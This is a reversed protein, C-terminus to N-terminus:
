LSCLLHLLNSFNIIVIHWVLFNFNRTPHRRCDIVLRKAAQCNEHLIKKHPWLFFWLLYYMRQEGGLIFGQFNSHFTHFTVNWDCLMAQWKIEMGYIHLHEEKQDIYRFLHLNKPHHASHYPPCGATNELIKLIWM